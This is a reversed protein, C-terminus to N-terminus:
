TSDTTFHHGTEPRSHSTSHPLLEGRRPVSSLPLLTTSLSRSAPIPLCSLTHTPHAPALLDTATPSPLASKPNAVVPPRGGESVRCARNLDLWVGLGLGGECEGRGIAREGACAQCVCTGCVAFTNTSAFAIPPAIGVRPGAMAIAEGAKGSRTAHARKGANEGCCEGEWRPM